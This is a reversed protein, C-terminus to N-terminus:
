VPVRFMIRVLIVFFMPSSAQPTVGFDLQKLTALDNNKEAAELARASSYIMVFPDEGSKMKDMLKELDAASM